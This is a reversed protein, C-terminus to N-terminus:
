GAFFGWSENTLSLDGVQFQEGDPSEVVVNTLEARV